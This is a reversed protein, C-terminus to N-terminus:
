IPLLMLLLTTLAPLSFLTDYTPQSGSRLPTKYYSASRSDAPMFKSGAVQNRVSSYVHSTPRSPVWAVSDDIVVAKDAISVVQGDITIEDGQHLTLRGIYVVVRSSQDLAVSVTQSGIKMTRTPGGAPDNWQGGLPQNPKDLKGAEPNSAPDQPSTFPSGPTPLPPKLRRGPEAAVTQRASSALIAETPQQAAAFPPVVPDNISQVPRLAIPPDVVAPAACGWKGINPMISNWVDRKFALHPRHSGDTITACLKEPNSGWCFNPRADYYIEAPVPDQLDRYNIPLIRQTPKPLWQNNNVWEIRPEQTFSGSAVLRAYDAGTYHPREPRLTYVDSADLAILGPGIVETSRPVVAKWPQGVDWGKLRVSATIERHAM